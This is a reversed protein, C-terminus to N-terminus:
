RRAQRAQQKKIKKSLLADLKPQLFMSWYPAPALVVDQETDKAIMRNNLKIKWIITYRVCIPPDASYDKEQDWDDPQLLCLRDVEVQHVSPSTPISPSLSYVPGPAGPDVTTGQSGEAEPSLWQDWTNLFPFDQSYAGDATSPEM